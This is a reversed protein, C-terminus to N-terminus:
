QRSIESPALLRVSPNIRYGKGHVNEILADQSLPLGFKGLYGSQVKKRIRSVQRRLTPEEIGLATALDYKDKCRYNEPAKKNSQDELYQDVLIKVLQFMKTGTLPALGEVHVQEEEEDVAIRIETARTYDIKERVGNDTHEEDGVGPNIVESDVAIGLGGDRSIAMMLLSNAPFSKNLLGGAHSQVGDKMVNFVTGGHRKFLDIVKKANDDQSGPLHQTM